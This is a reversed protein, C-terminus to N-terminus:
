VEPRPNSGWRACPGIPYPCGGQSENLFGSNSGRHSRLAHRISVRIFLTFILTLPFCPPTCFKEGILLTNSATESFIKFKIM